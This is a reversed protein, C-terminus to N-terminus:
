LFIHTENIYIKRSGHAPPFPDTTNPHQTYERFRCRMSSSSPVTSITSIICVHLFVFPKNLAEANSLVHYLLRELPEFHLDDSAARQQARHIAGNVLHTAEM